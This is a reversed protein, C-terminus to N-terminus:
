VTAMALGSELSGLFQPRLTCIAASNGHYCFEGMLLCPIVSFEYSAFSSYPVNKLVGLREEWGSLYAMGLFGLLVMVVGIHLGSFLLLIMLGIAIYGVVIPTM